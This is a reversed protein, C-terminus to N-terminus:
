TEHLLQNCLKHLMENQTLKPSTRVFRSFDISREPSSPSAPAPGGTIPGYQIDRCSGVIEKQHFIAIM